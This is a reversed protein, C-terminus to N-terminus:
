ENNKKERIAIEQILDSLKQELISVKVSLLFIKVILLFILALFVFNSPSIFGFTRAFGIAINPCISLLVLLVSFVIWFFADMLQMQSKKLKRYIFLLLIISGILLLVRLGLSM